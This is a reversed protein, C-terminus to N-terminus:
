LRLQQPTESSQRTTACICAITVTEFELSHSSCRRSKRLVPMKISIPISELSFPSEVDRCSHSTLCNAEYIVQPVRDLDIKEVYRWAAVSRENIRNPVDVLNTHYEELSALCFNEDVCRGSVPGGLVTGPALVMLGCVCLLQFPLM